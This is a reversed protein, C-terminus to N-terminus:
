ERAGGIWACTGCSGSWGRLRLASCSRPASTPSPTPPAVRRRPEHWATRLLRAEVQARDHADVASPERWGDVCEAGLDADTHEPEDIVEGTYHCDACGDTGCSPCGVVEGPAACALRDRHAQQEAALWQARAYQDARTM